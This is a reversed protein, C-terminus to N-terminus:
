PRARRRTPPTRTASVVHEGVELLQAYTLAPTPLSSATHPRLGDLAIALQRRWAGPAVAEIAPVAGALSCKALVVDTLAVDPRVVGARQARELLTQLLRDGRERLDNLVPSRPMGQALLESLGQDTALLECVAEFLTVLATWPDEIRLVRERIEELAAGTEAFVAECLAERTPFHRYLTANGVGARRAIEDLPADLGQERLVEGAADLLRQRNRRADSRLGVAVDVASMLPIMVFGHVVGWIMALTM